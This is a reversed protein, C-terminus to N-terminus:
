RGTSRPRLANQPIRPQLAHQGPGDIALDHQVANHTILLHGDSLIHQGAAAVLNKGFSQGDTDDRFDAGALVQKKANSDLGRGVQALQFFNQHQDFLLLPLRGGVDLTRTRAASIRACRRGQTGSLGASAFASPGQRRVSSVRQSLNRLPSCRGLAALVRHRSHAPSWCRLRGQRQSHALSGSWLRRASRPRASGAPSAALPRLSRPLRNWNRLLIDNGRSGLRLGGCVLGATVGAIVPSYVPSDWEPGAWDAVAQRRCCGLSAHRDSVCGPLLNLNVPEADRHRNPNRQQRQKDLSKDRQPKGAKGFIEIQRQQDRNEERHRPATGNVPRSVPPKIPSACSMSPCLGIPM